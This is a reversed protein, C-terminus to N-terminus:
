HALFRRTADLEIENINFRSLQLAYEVTLFLHEINSLLICYIWLRRSEPLTKGAEVVLTSLSVQAHQIKWFKATFAKHQQILLDLLQKHM